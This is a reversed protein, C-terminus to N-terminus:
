ISKIDNFQNGKHSLQSVSLAVEVEQRMTCNLQRYKIQVKM